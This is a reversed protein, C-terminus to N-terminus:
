PRNDPRADALFAGILETACEGYNSWTRDLVSARAAGRMARLNPPDAACHLLRDALAQANGAPVIWGNKGPTVLEGAGVQDSILVPTGCALAEAVVLGFSEIRSPLILLDSQRMLDALAEAKVPAVIKALGRLKAAIAPDGSALATVLSVDMKDILRPDQLAAALIDAGKTYTLHGVFLLKPRGAPVQKADPSFVDLDVGLPLTEVRKDPWARRYSAAALDSCTIILDSLKIEASKHAMKAPPNSGPLWEEQTAADYSAADLICMMGLKKAKRFTQLCSAEYGIVADAGPSLRRAARRDFLQFSKFVLARSLRMPRLRTALRRLNMTASLLIHRASGLHVGRPLPAGSIYTALSGTKALSEALRHSHQREAHCIIVKSIM